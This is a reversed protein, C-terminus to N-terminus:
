DRSSRTPATARWSWASTTPPAGGVRHGARHRRGAGEASSLFGALFWPDLVAPDTRLVFVVSSPYAGGDDGAAVRATLRRAVVPVLVDGARIPPNRVEDADVQDITSPPQGTIIDAGTLIRL